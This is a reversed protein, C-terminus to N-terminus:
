TALLWMTPFSAAAVDLSEHKSAWTPANSVVSADRLRSTVVTRTSGAAVPLVMRSEPRASCTTTSVATFAKRAVGDIPVGSVLLGSPVTM